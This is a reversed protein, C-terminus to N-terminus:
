PSRPADERLVPKDVAMGWSRLAEYAAERLDYVKEKAGDPSVQISSAPDKLLSKLLAANKESRFHGLAQIGELRLRGADARDSYTLFSDPSEVLRRALKELRHDIPVSLSNADGSRGSRQMFGRPLDLNHAEVRGAERGELAAARAALLILDPDRLVDLGMSFIPPPMAVFGREEAVPPGLRIVSWGGGYPRFRSRAAVKGPEADDRDEGEKNRALFWLQERGTDKWGEYVRYSAMIQETFELSEAREGKLTELVKLTVTLRDEPNRYFKPEPNPISVREVRFVSARVVVDSDAVLWELSSAQYGVQASAQGSALAWAVATLTLPSFPRGM